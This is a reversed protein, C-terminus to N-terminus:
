VQVVDRFTFTQWLVTYIERLYYIGGKQTYGEWWHTIFYVKIPITYISQIISDNGVCSNSM